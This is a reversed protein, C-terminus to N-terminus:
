NALHTAEGENENEQDHLRLRNEPYDLIKLVQVGRGM